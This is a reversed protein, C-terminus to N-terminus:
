RTQAFTQWIEPHGLIEWVGWLAWLPGAWIFLLSKWGLRSVMERESRNSIIFPCQGQMLITPPYLNFKRDSVAGSPLSADLYPFADRRLLDAENEGVFGPGIRSLESDERVRNAWPNECLTGIAFIDDGPLICMEEAAQFDDAAFGHRSLVRRLYEGSNGQGCPLQTEAGKPYIMLEGTGDDVFLPACVEDIIQGGAKRLRQRLFGFAFAVLAVDTDRTYRYLNAAQKYARIVVRYYLCEKGALPSILTYPGIAKGAIQVPGM